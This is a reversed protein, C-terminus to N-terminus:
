EGGGDLWASQFNPYTASTFSIHLDSSAGYTQVEDFLPIAVAEDVVLRRQFAESNAIRQADDVTTLVDAALGQYPAPDSLTTLGGAHFFVPELGGYIWTRSGFLPVSAEARAVANFSNDNFRNDVGVGLERWQQAIYDVAPTLSPNNASGGAILVLKQGDKERIGDAGPVWGAEDLLEAAREPDYALEESFDAADAANANLVTTSVTYDDGLITSILGERDFGIQLAQRVRVDSTLPNDPRVALVNSTLDTAVIRFLQAGAEELGAEDAPLIGRTLQVQGSSVAGPRLGVETIPRITIRDLYAEGQNPSSAPAWAYGERKVIVVEEPAQSELVYPGSGVILSPDVAAEADPADLTSQAVIGSTIGSTAFLFLANPQAFHVILEHESVVETSEYGPFFGTPAINRSEDGFAILDYNNAVVQADLPTGDSFTVGERLTFSFATADDNASFETALWPELEGTEYDYYTLRDVLSHVINGFHYGGWRRGAGWGEGWVANSDGFVIEGGAVPTGDGGPGSESPACAALGGVLAIGTIVGLAARLGRRRRNSM